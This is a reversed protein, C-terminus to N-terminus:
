LDERWLLRAFTVGHLLVEKKLHGKFPGRDFSSRYFKVEFINREM